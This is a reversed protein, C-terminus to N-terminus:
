LFSALPISALWACLCVLAAFLLAMVLPSLKRQSFLAAVSSRMDVAARDSRVQVIAVSINDRGGQENARAVLETVAQAPPLSRAIRAMEREAVPGSLGDSCLLLMDGRRLDLHFLDVEVSPRTGLARTILNRQPHKEAQEPTLIGAQVQEEVWSHDMTIRALRKRRLLYARSDGVNAVTVRRNLVVAAVLTTGMGTKDPDAQALDYVAQNASNFAQRLSEDVSHSRDAYYTRKAREVAMRSAVEGALHGGMGDAVLFIAGKVHLQDGDEPVIYDVYDENHKRVLGPDTKQGVLMEFDAM